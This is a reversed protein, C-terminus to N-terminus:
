EIATFFHVACRKACDLLKKVTQAPDFSDASDCANFFFHSNCGHWLAPVHNRYHLERRSSRQTPNVLDLGDRNNPHDHLSTDRKRHRPDPTGRVEQRRRPLM